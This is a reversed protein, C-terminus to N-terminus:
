ASRIGLRQRASAATAAQLGQQRMAGVLSQVLAATNPAVQGDPLYLNNEFGVRAHGGLAAAWHWGDVRPDPGLLFRRDPTFTRHGAWHRLPRLTGARPLVPTVKRALWEPAEPAAQASGPEDPESDCPSWILGAAEPRFYFGHRLDWVFPWDETRGFSM